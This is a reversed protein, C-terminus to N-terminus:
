RAGGTSAGSRSVGLMLAFVGGFFPFGAILTGALSEPLFQTSGVPRTRPISRTPCSTPSSCGLLTWIGLLIWTAARKRLILLEAAVDRTM